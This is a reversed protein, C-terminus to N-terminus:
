RGISRRLPWPPAHRSGLGAARGDRPFLARGALLGGLLAAGIGIVRGAGGPAPIAQFRAGEPGLDIFGLPRAHVYGGGGGGDPRRVEGARGADTAAVERDGSADGDRGFGLGGMGRVSAVPVVTRGDAHIPRGFCMRAGTLRALLRRSTGGSLATAWEPTPPAAAPPSVMTASPPSAEVSRRKDKKAM